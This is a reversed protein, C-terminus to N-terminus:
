HLIDIRKLDENARASKGVYVSTMSLSSHDAQQRVYSVPVGKGLMNTIGTDKLSYFQLDNGFGCSARVTEFWYDSIRQSWIKTPGPRFEYKAGSFLYWDPHSLDVDSLYKLMADPITRQSDNDNKAVEGRVNVIQRKLDVDGCKLMVIEKPRMFCCYCFLCALLYGKNSRELVNWLTELESPSFTRRTKRTLKKSKRKISAFPNSALYGKEVMWNCMISYFRVKNNYTQACLDDDNDVDNMFSMAVEKNFAAAYSDQNFGNDLLWKKMIRVQSRYTRITSDESEKAKAKLFLDMAEFAKIGKFTTSEDLPNWGLVLRENIDAIMEKAVKRRCRIPTIHNIKIRLRKLKGTTPNIVYYSIYWVKGTDHLKAPVYHVYPIPKFFRMKKEKCLELIADHLSVTQIEYIQGPQTGTEANQICFGSNKLPNPTEPQSVLIRVQVSPVLIGLAVM